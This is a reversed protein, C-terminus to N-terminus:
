ASLKEDMRRLRDALVRMVQLAFMPTQQILFTFRKETIPVLKCHTEAVATAVRPSADILAMEGLMGGPGLEEVVVGKVRLSVRGEQVVYMTHGEEGASFIAQGASYEEFQDENRFLDISIVTQGPHNSKPSDVM